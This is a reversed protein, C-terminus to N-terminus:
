YIFRVAVFCKKKAVLRKEAISQLTSYILGARSGVMGEHAATKAVVSSLCGGPAEAVM